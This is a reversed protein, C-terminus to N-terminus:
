GSLLLFRELQDAAQGVTLASTDVRVGGVSAGDLRDAETAARAAAERLRGAPQGRLPDGPQAWSEGRGRCEIRRLLEAPSAQLRCVTIAASPLAATYATVARADPVPGTAVLIRAGAAHYTRWLGALNRAKLRHRGPDGAPDPRCFGLQDLDVYAATEGAALRRRYAEFGIASKGVGPAGCVLLVRGDLGATDPVAAAPSRCAEASEAQGHGPWGGCRELTLRAAEAATLDTTDVRADAFGDAELAAAARRAAAVAEATDGRRVLRRELESRAGSLLCVTVDAGPIAGAPVGRAPDVVGSVVVCESGAARFGETVAALNREKMRIRGPDRAPEPYCIGLQDIDAFAARTGADALRSYIDWGVTSKGAGPPGCLWLLPVPGSRVPGIM